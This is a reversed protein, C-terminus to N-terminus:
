KSLCKEIGTEKLIRARDILIAAEGRKINIKPSIKGDIKLLDDKLIGCNDAALFYQCYWQKTKEKGFFNKDTIVSPCNYEKNPPGKFFANMLIKMFYGRDVTSEPDFNFDFFNKGEIIENKVLDDIYDCGFKFRGNEKKKCDFNEKIPERKIGAAKVIMKSVAALSADVTPYFNNRDGSIVERTCLNRLNYYLIPANKKKVDDFHCKPYKEIYYHDVSMSPKFDGNSKKEIWTPLYYNEEWAFQWSEPWYLEKKNDFNNARGMSYYYDNGNGKKIYAREITRAGENDIIEGLNDRDDRIVLEQRWAELFNKDDKDKDELAM